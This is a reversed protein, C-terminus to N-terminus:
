QLFRIFEYKDSNKNQILQEDYILDNCLKLLSGGHWNFNWYLRFKKDLVNRISYENSFGDQNLSQTMLLKDDTRMKILNNLKYNIEFAHLQQKELQKIESAEQQRMPKTSGNSATSATSISPSLSFPILLYEKLNNSLEFQAMQGNNSGQDGSKASQSKNSFEYYYDLCSVQHYLLIFLIISLEEQISSYLLTAENINGDNQQKLQM